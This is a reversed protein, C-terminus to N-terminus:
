YFIVNQERWQSSKKLSQLSFDVLIRCTLIYGFARIEEKIDTNELLYKITLSVMAGLAIWRCKRSSVCIKPIKAKRERRWNWWCFQHIQWRQDDGEMNEAWTKTETRALLEFCGEIRSCRICYFHSAPILHFLISVKLAVCSKPLLRKTKSRILRAHQISSVDVWKPWGREESSYRCKYVSCLNSLIKNAACSRSTGTYHLRVVKRGNM